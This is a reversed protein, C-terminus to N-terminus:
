IGLFIDGHYVNNCCSKSQLLREVSLFSSKFIVLPFVDKLVFHFLIFNICSKHLFHSCRSGCVLAVSLM